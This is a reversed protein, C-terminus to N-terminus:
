EGASQDTWIQQIHTLDPQPRQFQEMGRMSAVLKVAGEEGARMREELEAFDPYRDYGESWVKIGQSVEGKKVLADGLATYAMPWLQTQRDAYSRAVSVCFSLDQIAKDIRKLGVPWYLNNIGRAYHAMWDYPYADLIRELEAISQYSYQGLKATGISPDQLMDIYTLAKQLRIDPYEDQPLQAWFDMLEETRGAETMQIRLSTSYALQAPSFTVLQKLLAIDGKELAYMYAQDAMETHEISSVPALPTIEGSQVAQHLIAEERFDLRYDAWKVDENLKPLAYPKTWQQYGWMSLVLAYFLLLVLLMKKM